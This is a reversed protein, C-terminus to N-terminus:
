IIVIKLHWADTLGGTTSMTLLFATNCQLYDVLDTDNELESAVAVDDCSSEDEPNTAKAGPGWRKAPGIRVLRFQHIVM